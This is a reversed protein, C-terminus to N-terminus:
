LDSARALASRWATWAMNVSSFREFCIMLAALRTVFFREELSAGESDGVLRLFGTGGLSCSEGAAMSAERASGSVEQASSSSAAVVM